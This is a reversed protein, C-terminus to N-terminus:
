TRIEGSTIRRAAEYVKRHFPPMGEFDLDIGDLDAEKGDLHRVIRTIAAKVAAPPTTSGGEKPLTIRGLLVAQTAEESEDPLQLCVLGRESWAVGCPGIATIFVLYGEASRRKGM